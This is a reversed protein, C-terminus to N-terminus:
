RDDAREPLRNSAEPPDADSVPALHGDQSLMVAIWRTEPVNALVLLIVATIPVSLFAGPIGWILSWGVLAIMVLLPSMNLRRGMVGPEILNAVALQIATVGVGVIAFEKLTEFQLLAILTPLVTAVLSGVNPIFNFAFILVAWFEAFDLGVLRMVIYSLAATLLSVLAKLALYVSVDHDIRKLLVAIRRRRRDDPFAAVLKGAFWGRELLLFALYVIVLGTTGAVGAAGSALDALLATPEFSALLRDLLDVDELQLRDAWVALLEELRARYRPGAEIVDTVNKVLLEVLFLGISAILLGSLTTTVPRPLRRGGIRVHSWARELANVIALMMFAIVLPVLFSKAAAIAWVGLVAAVIMAAPSSAASAVALVPTAAPGFPAPSGPATGTADPDAGAAPSADSEGSVGRPDGSESAGPRVPESSSPPLDTM